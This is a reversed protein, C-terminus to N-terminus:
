YPITTLRVTLVVSAPTKAIVAITHDGDEIIVIRWVIRQDQAVSMTLGYKELDRDSLLPVSRRLVVMRSDLNVVFLLPMM